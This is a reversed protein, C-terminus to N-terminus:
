FSKWYAHTNYCRLPQTGDGSFRVQSGRAPPVATRARPASALKGGPKLLARMKDLAGGTDVHHLAAVSVIAEFSEAEFSHTSFDALIYEVHADPAQQRALQISQEDRDIGTVRCGRRSLERALMGEGCGVPM